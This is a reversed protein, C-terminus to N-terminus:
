LRLSREYPEREGADLWEAFTPGALTANPGPLLAGSEYLDGDASALDGGAWGGGAEIRVADGRRAVLLTALDVLNEEQPGAIELFPQGDPPAAPASATALDALGRAVTRASVPQTRMKPLYAVEDQRSWDVLQGVFEHFQAARLVRAPIPGSLMAQEHALKAANYGSTFRDIGIISVVVMRQVGARAGAEQLNRAATTFFETAAAEDPSPGTAADVIADVGVLAEALGDGTTVDVGLSRSMAVVDHGERELLDVVHHGVRGTGGAVAIKGPAQM